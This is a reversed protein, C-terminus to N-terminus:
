DCGEGEFKLHLIDVGNSGVNVGLAKSLVVTSGNGPLDSFAAGFVGSGLGMSSNIQFYGQEVVDTLSGPSTTVTTIGQEASVGTIRRLFGGAQAGVITKGITFDVAASPTKFRFLGAAIAASDSVLPAVMSDVIVANVSIKPTSDKRALDSPKPGTADSPKCAALLLPLAFQLIAAAPLRRVVRIRQRSSM